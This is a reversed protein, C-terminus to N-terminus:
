VVMPYDILSNAENYTLNNKRSGKDGTELYLCYKVFSREASQYDEDNYFEINETRNFIDRCKKVMRKLGQNTRSKVVM